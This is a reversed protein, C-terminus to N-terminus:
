GGKKSGRLSAVTSQAPGTAGTLNAGCSGRIVLEASLVTKSCRMQPMELQRVLQETALAAMEELPVHMTTLAPEFYSALEVDDFGVFALDEPIRLGRRRLFRIAGVAMMDNAAFVATPLEGTELLREAARAGSEELFDGTLVLRDGGRIGAEECADLFGQVRDVADRSNKPGSIHALRRHGLDILHRTARYAGEYDDVAVYSYNGQAPGRSFLFFPIGAETLLKIYSSEMEIYSGILLAGKVQRGIIRRKAADTPQGTTDGFYLDAKFGFQEATKFITSVLIMSFYSNGHRYSTDRRSPWTIFIGLTNESKGQRKKLYGVQEAATTVRAVLEPNVTSGGNLVRSVTAPSVGAAKAVDTITAAM